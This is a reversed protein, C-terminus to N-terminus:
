SIHSMRSILCAQQSSVPDSEYFSVLLLQGADGTDYSSGTASPTFLPPFLPTERHPTRFDARFAEDWM